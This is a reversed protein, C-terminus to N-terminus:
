FEEYFIKKINNATIEQNNYLQSFIDNIYYELCMSSDQYITNALAEMAKNIQSDQGMGYAFDAVDAVFAIPALAGASVIGAAVGLTVSGVTLATGM